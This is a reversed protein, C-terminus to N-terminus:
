MHSSCHSGFVESLPAANLSAENVLFSRSSKWAATFSLGVGLSGGLAWAEWSVRLNKFENSCDIEQAKPALHEQLFKAM